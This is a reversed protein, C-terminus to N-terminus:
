TDNETVKRIESDTFFFELIQAASYGLLAMNKAGNQSMGAGHGFGGGTVSYGTIEEGDKELQLIFFGSPLLSTMDVQSGDQRCVQTKSDCLVYRIYLESIVKYTAQSGEIILEDAVGGANRKVVEINKITGLKEPMCSRYEGDELMLVLAPNVAYRTQLNSLLIDASAEAVEYKWRYWPEDKEFANESRNQIFESFVAEECMDEATYGNETPQLSIPKATLYRVESEYQTHWVHEDAGFGCSTSYYYTDAPVDGVFLIQGATERVATTTATQEKVNNYVQYGTSDNVHAGIEALGPTLMHLYAYTRACIAQAKLAELPYGAPMESPVVACLYEELLIENIIVLGKDTCLLEMKGGYAPTGQSRTVSHLSIKGDSTDPLIYVRDMDEEQSFCPSEPTITVPEGAAIEEQIGAGYVFKWTTDCSLTVSDHYEGEYNDNLIEVRIYEMGRTEKVENDTIIKDMDMEDARPVDQEMKKTQMTEYEKQQGALSVVIVMLLFIMGLICRFFKKKIRTERNESFLQSIM